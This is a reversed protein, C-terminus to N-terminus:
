RPTAGARLGLEPGQPHTPQHFRDRCIKSALTPTELFCSAAM